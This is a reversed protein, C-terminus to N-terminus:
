PTITSFELAMTEAQMVWISGLIYVINGNLQRGKTIYRNKIIISQHSCMTQNIFNNSRSTAKESYGM